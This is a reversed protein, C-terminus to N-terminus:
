VEWNALVSTKYISFMADYNCRTIKNIDVSVTFVSSYYNSMDSYWSSCDKVQCECLLLVVNTKRRCISRKFKAIPNFLCSMKDEAHQPDRRIAVTTLNFQTGIIGLQNRLM